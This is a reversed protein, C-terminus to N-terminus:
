HRWRTPTPRRSALVREFPTQPADYVRRVKSGVRVKKVLKVSPLFLNLWLRLEHRYLDNMAEVAARSDYRDWGLLKRVHTWNKQEIHANDDKKYPRGRTLQIQQETRVLRQLHWNIFESGNDSDVGLLRSPCRREPDGGLGAARGGPGEGAGRAVRDVRTHIDTVNLTHAFEGEGSNGSHSVLDIETFGPTTVDWSDTKVPIHHKLLSGPKTRGYLRRKCQSKKAQLRRDIQRASIALLQRETEASLQVAPPDVADLEAALAKLRVSWPYGAAEWVAALVSVVAPSYHPKRGRAPAEVHKGPPSGNLLRIAYKRHYGTNLCFEDLMGGKAKGEAKRYREHVVRFYEWRAAQGM